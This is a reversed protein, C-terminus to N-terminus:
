PSHTTTFLLANHSTITHSGHGQSFKFHVRYIYLQLFHSHLSCTSETHLQFDATLPPTLLPDHGSIFVNQHVFTFSFFFVIPVSSKM